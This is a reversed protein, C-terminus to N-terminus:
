YISNDAIEVNMVSNAQGDLELGRRNSQGVAGALIAFGSGTNAASIDTPSGVTNGSIVANVIAQDRAQFLLAKSGFTLSTTTSSRWAIISRLQTTSLWVFAKM